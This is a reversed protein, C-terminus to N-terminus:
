FLNISFARKFKRQYLETFEAETQSLEVLLLIADFHAKHEHMTNEELWAHITYKRHGNLKVPNYRNLYAREDSNLDEYVFQWMWNALKPSNRACKLFSSIKDMNEDGFLPHPARPTEMLRNLVNERQEPSIDSSIYVANRRLEPLVEETVWDQFQGANPKKSRFILRYLGAETIYLSPRGKGIQWEKYQHEKCHTKVTEYPNAFGLIKCTETARFWAIKEVEISPFKFGEFLATYTKM